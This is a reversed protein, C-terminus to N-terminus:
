FYYDYILFPIFTMFQVNMGKKIVKNDESVNKLCIYRMYVNM